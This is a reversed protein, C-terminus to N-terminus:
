DRKSELWRGDLMWLLEELLKTQKQLETLVSQIPNNLLSSAPAAGHTPDTLSLKYMDSDEPFTHQYQGSQENDKLSM